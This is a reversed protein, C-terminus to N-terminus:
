REEIKWESGEKVVLLSPLRRNNITVRVKGRIDSGKHKSYEFKVDDLEFEGIQEQFMGEYMALAKEWGMEEFGKRVRKSCVTKLLAIDSDKVAKLWRLILQIQPRADSGLLDKRSLETQTVERNPSHTKKAPSHNTDGCGTVSALLVSFIVVRPTYSIM